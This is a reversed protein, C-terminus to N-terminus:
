ALHSNAKQGKYAQGSPLYFIGGLQANTGVDAVNVRIHTFDNNIDLDTDRIFIAVVLENEAGNISDTDFSSVKNELNVSAVNQWVDDAADIATSGIKYDIKQVTLAKAGTGSADKAQEFSIVPDDGATGVAAVVIANVGEVDKTNFWRGNVAAASLDVPIAGVVFDSVESIAGCREM